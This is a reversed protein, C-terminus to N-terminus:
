KSWLTFVKCLKMDTFEAWLLPWWASGSQPWGASGAWSVCVPTSASRHIGALIVWVLSFQSPRLPLLSRMGRVLAWDWSFELLRAAEQPCCASLIGDAKILLASATCIQGAWPPQADLLAELDHHQARAVVLGVTFLILMLHPTERVWGSSGLAARCESEGGAPSKTLWQVQEQHCKMMKEGAFTKPSGHKSMTWTHPQQFEAHLRSSMTRRLNHTRCSFRWLPGGTVVPLPSPMHGGPCSCHDQNRGQERERHNWGPSLEALWAERPAQLAVAKHPTWSYSDSVLYVINWTM